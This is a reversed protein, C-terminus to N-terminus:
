KEGAAKPFDKLLDTNKPLFDKMAWAFAATSVLGVLTDAMVALFMVIFRAGGDQGDEPSGAA